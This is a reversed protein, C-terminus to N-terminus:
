QPTFPDEQELTGVGTHTGVPVLVLGPVFGSGSLRLSLSYFPKSYVFSASLQGDALSTDGPHPPDGTLQGQDQRPEKEFERGVSILKKGNKTVTRCQMCTQPSACTDATTHMQLDSTLATKIVGWRSKQPLTECVTPNMSEELSAPCQARPSLVPSSGM